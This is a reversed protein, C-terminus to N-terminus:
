YFKVGLGDGEGFISVKGRKVLVGLAKQLLEAPMGRWESDATADGELLEYFTLVTNKQGTREVWQAVLVAWEEGTKWWVWAEERTEKGDRRKTTGNEVWEVRGREAMWKLVEKADEAALRRNLTVNTFLPHSPTIRFLRHGACYSLLLYSWSLFQSNRTTLNPQLTYFPPFFYHAPYRFTTASASPDSNTLVTVPVYGPKQNISTNPTSSIAPTSSSPKPTARSDHLSM